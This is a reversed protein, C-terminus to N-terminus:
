VSEQNKAKSEGASNPGLPDFQGKKTSPPLVMPPLNLDFISNIPPADIVSESKQNDTKLEEVRLDILKWWFVGLLLFLCPFFNWHKM